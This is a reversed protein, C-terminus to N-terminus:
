AEEASVSMDQVEETERGGKRFAQFAIFAELCLWLTMLLLIGGVIILPYNGKEWFTFWNLSMAGLTMLIMFIMPVLTYIVPKGKKYLYISGVLLAIGGLLQNTTGFLSWLILGAPKGNFKMFAFAGIALVAGLSALYKNGLPKLATNQSIEELNYRLLRTGSDLTTMAFGVAVVAIFTKAFALPIGFNAIFFGAGNIFAALKAALGSVADWSRYFHNWSAESAFGATCALIVVVALAGEALMGGYAVMQADTEKAIQRVTTGSSVLCHFGSIAGCAVTIFLFPFLAPLTASSSFFNASPNVAPAVLAPVGILLGGYMLFCGAYLQFSNLYDRPQLLIWVPLISAVLAYFLLIWIWLVATWSAAQLLDKLAEQDGLTGFFLAMRSPNSSDLELYTLPIKGDQQLSQNLADVKNQPHLKEKKDLLSDGFDTILCYKQFTGRSEHSEIKELTKGQLFLPYFTVPYSIGLWLSGFVLPLGVLTAKGLPVNWKYVAVGMVVAIGILSFTPLAAQPQFNTFLGAIVLAFVGMALALAFFIILLFLHRARSGIIDKTIDGISRGEHRLSLGLAVLDHVAGLFITGFVVWLIAPLWGWIVAIAPGLIPGLGAISAFHHGFLVFRNTPVYEQGDEKIQSPTQRHPDLELIKQSIFKGYVFYAVVFGLLSILALLIASM